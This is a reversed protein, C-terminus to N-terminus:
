EERDKNEELSIPLEILFQAGQSNSSLLKIEGRHQRVIQRAFALGM